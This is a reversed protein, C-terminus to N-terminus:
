DFGLKPYLSQKFDYRPLYLVSAFSCSTSALNSVPDNLQSTFIELIFRCLIGKEFTGNAHTAYGVRMYNDNIYKCNITFIIDSEPTLIVHDIMKVSNMILWVNKIFFFYWCQKTQILLWESAPKFHKGLLFSMFSQLWM